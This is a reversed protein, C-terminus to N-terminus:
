CACDIYELDQAKLQNSRSEWAIIWIESYILSIVFEFCFLKGSFWANNRRACSTLGKREVRPIHWWHSTFTTHLPHSTSAISTSYLHLPHSTSQINLLHVTSTIHLPHSTSAISTIYFPHSTSAISTITSTIYLAHSTSTSSTIHIDQQISTIHIYQAIFAHSTSAISAIYFHLAHSSSTVHLLYPISAISTIHIDHEISTIHIYQAISTTIYICHIHHVLLPHSTCIMNLLRSICAISTIYMHHAVSITYICLAHWTSDGADGWAPYLSRLLGSRTNKYDTHTLWIHTQCTHIQTDCQLWYLSRLLGPRTNKYDTHHWGFIYKDHTYTHTVSYGICRGCSGQVHTKPILTDALHTNPLHTDTHWVTVLIAVTLAQIRAYKYGTHTTCFTQRHPTYRHRVTVLVAVALSRIHTYTCGTHTTGFTHKDATYRHRAAGLIAVALSRIRIYKYGTHTLWSHTQGAHIQANCQLLYLLQLRGSAHTNTVLTHHASPTNTLHTDTHRVTIFTAVGLAGTCTYKYGTHTTGFTLKDPTIETDCRFLHLSRLLGLAHTNAALKHTHALDHTQWTHIQTYCRLLYLSWLLMHIQLWNKHM